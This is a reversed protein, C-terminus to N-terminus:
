HLKELVLTKNKVDIKFSFNKLFSMGLLGDKLKPDDIDSLLVAADVNRAEAGKVSLTELVVHRASIKSGDALICQVIDKKDITGSTKIGLKEAAQHSLLVFTAGTDLVLTVSVKKNVIAEVMMQGNEQFVQANKPAAEMAQRVQEEKKRNEIKKEEWKRKLAASEEPTSRYVQEVEGRRFKVIGFGVDCEITSDDEKRIFAEIKNGNKLYIIDAYLDPVAAVLSVVLFIVTNVHKM